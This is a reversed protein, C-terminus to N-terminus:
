PRLAASRLATLPAGGGSQGSGWAAPGRLRVQGAPVSLQMVM